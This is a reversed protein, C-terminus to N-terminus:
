KSEDGIQVQCNGQLFDCLFENKSFSLYTIQTVSIQRCIFRVKHM